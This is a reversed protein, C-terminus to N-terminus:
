ARSCAGVTSTCRVPAASATAAVRKRGILGAHDRIADLLTTRPDLSLPYAQGNLRLTLTVPGAVARGPPPFREPGAAPSELPLSLAATSAAGYLFNRRTSAGGRASESEHSM